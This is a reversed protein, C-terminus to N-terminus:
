MEAINNLTIVLFHQVLVLAKISLFIHKKGILFQMDYIHQKDIFFFTNTISIFRYVVIFLAIVFTNNITKPTTHNYILQKNGLNITGAISGGRKTHAASGVGSRSPEGETRWTESGERKRSPCDAANSDSLM